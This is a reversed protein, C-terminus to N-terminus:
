RCSKGSIFVTTGKVTYSGSISHCVLNLQEQLNKHHLDGTFTCQYIGPNELTIMIGYADCLKQFVDKLSSGSFNLSIAAAQHNLIYLPKPHAVLTQHIQHEKDDFVAKQNATLLVGATRRKGPFVIMERDANENVEVKGTCVSVQAETEQVLFSTGIAKIKLTKNYVYFPKLQNKQVKFFADGHLYVVRKRSKFVAPYIVRAQPQLTVRSGDSLIITKTSDTHNFASLMTKGSNKKYFSREAYNYNYTYFFTCSMAITISAAIATKYWNIYYRPKKREQSEM